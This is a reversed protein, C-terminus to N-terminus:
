KGGQQLGDDNHKGDNDSRKEKPMTKNSCCNFLEIYNLKKIWNIIKMQNHPNKILKVKFIKIASKRQKESSESVGSFKHSLFFSPFIKYSFDM